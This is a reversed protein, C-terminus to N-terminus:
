AGLVAEIREAIQEVNPMIAALLDEHYAAPIDKPAHQGDGDLTLAWAFGLERANRCGSQLAAGKGKSKAHHIVLAGAQRALPATADSSGDNIVLIDLRDRPYELLMMAEITYTIVKEENHAPILM